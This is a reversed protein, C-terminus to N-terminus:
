YSQRPLGVVEPLLSIPEDFPEGGIDITAGDNWKLDAFTVHPQYDPHPWTAGRALWAKHRAQLEPSDLTLVLHRGFREIRRGGPPVLVGAASDKTKYTGPVQVAKQTYAVTVHMGVETSRVGRKRAWAALAEQSVSSLPMASYVPRAELQGGLLDRTRHVHIHLSSM